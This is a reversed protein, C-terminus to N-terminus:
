KANVIKEVYSLTEQKALNLDDNVVICDFKDAFTLEYSAKAIREEIAEPSDTARLILRKRLEDISPPQIFISLAQEGYAKKINIGGKVDVDFVVNQGAELQKEVQEKLTGYFRDEYVEEYELFANQKIKQRFEEPTIFFYDVGNQETGRPPRSTCSISFYLQLEPHEQMLWNVITSKGSGSPASFIILRGRKKM